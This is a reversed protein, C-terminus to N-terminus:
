GTLSAPTEQVEVTGKSFSVVRSTPAGTPSGGGSPSSSEQGASTPDAQYSEAAKKLAEAIEDADMECIAADFEGADVSEDLMSELFDLFATVKDAEDGRKEVRMLQMIRGHKPAEPRLLFPKGNLLIEAM